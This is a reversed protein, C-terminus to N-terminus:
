EEMGGVTLSSVRLAPQGVCVPISGSISGCMGEGSGFTNSIKDIKQLVELGTGILTAGKVAHDIKGNKVIYGEQVAFNFEGTAPQVSGGGLKKAYLGFEVGEFLEDHTSKGDLIYTNTMRSTPAYKYSERRTSGTAPMKMRLGNLRDVMYGKLIGNEILLNRSSKNGEDDINISGWANPITGDDIANVLPSAIQEGLKGAYVSNGKAVSTAELGHGCAEHFIVGGFKNEMIVPFQGSPANKASLMIDATEAANRAYDAIDVLDYAEFGMSRGYSASGGEMRSDRTAIANVSYRTRVREDEVLLGDTNAILINQKNDLYTVTVQSINSSYAFAAESGRRMLEVKKNTSVSGPMIKIINANDFPKLTLDKSYSKPVESIGAAAKRALEKLLGEDLGSMYTYISNLGRFIRIGIGVNRGSLSDEVVGKVMRINLDTRDEIFIEAFDGGTSMAIALTESIIRKDIM